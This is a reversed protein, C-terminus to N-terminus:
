AGAIRRRALMMLGFGALIALAGSAASPLPAAAAGSTLIVNDLVGDSNGISNGGLDTFQLEYVGSIQATFSYGYNHYAPISDAGTFPNAGITTATGITSSPSLGLIDVEVQQYAYAPGVLGYDFTLSYTAGGTANFTQSLTGGAGGNGSNFVVAGGVNDDSGTYGLAPTSSGALTWDASSAVGGQEFSGNNHTADIIVTDASASTCIFVGCLILWLSRM